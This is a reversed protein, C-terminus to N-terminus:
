EINTTHLARDGRDPYGVGKRQSPRILVNPVPKHYGTDPSRKPSPLFQRLPPLDMPEEAAARADEEAQLRKKKRAREVAALTAAKADLSSSSIDLPRVPALQPAGMLSSTSTGPRSSSSSSMNATGPRSISGAATSPRSNSTNCKGVEEEMEALRREAKLGVAFLSTLLPGQNPANALRNRLAVADRYNRMAASVDGNAEARRARDMTQTFTTVWSVASCPEGVIDPVQCEGDNPNAM